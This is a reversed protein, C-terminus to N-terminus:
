IEQDSLRVPRPAEGTRAYHSRHELISETEDFISCGGAIKAARADQRLQDLRDVVLARLADIADLVQALPAEHHVLLQVPVFHMFEARARFTNSNDEPWRMLKRYPWNELVVTHVSGCSLVPGGTTATWEFSLKDSQSPYLLETM